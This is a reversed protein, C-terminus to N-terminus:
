ALFARLSDTLLIASEAGKNEMKGVLAYKLFRSKLSLLSSLLRQLKSMRNTYDQSM